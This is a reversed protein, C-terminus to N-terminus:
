AEGWLRGIVIRANRRWSHERAFREWQPAPPDRLWERLGGAIAEASDPPVWVGLGYERTVDRLWAGGSSALLPTRHAAATNAVASASVFSGAYALLALDAAAFLNGVEDDPVFGIRWRCRDAVGVEEALARYFEPPRDGSWIRDGAVVLYVGPVGALARIALDLNKNDRISGFALLLTAGQPVGLEARVEARPRTARGRGYVGQPVVTARVPRGAEVLRVHEAEHVFAEHVFSYAAEVSGRHLWAPGAVHDRVPDHVVVGFRTGRQALRRLPRSWAPALLESYAGFLVRDFGQGRITRALAAYNGMITGALRGARALRLRPRGPPDLQALLPLVSYRPDRAAPAFEPACLVTVRVGEDALANAQEHAYEAMGGRSLPSFYLLRRPM